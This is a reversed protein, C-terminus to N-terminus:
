IIRGRRSINLNALVSEDSPTASDEKDVYPITDLDSVNEEDQLEYPLTDTYSDAFDDMDVFIEDMSKKGPLGQWNVCYVNRNFRKNRRLEGKDMIIIYPRPCSRKPYNWLFEM